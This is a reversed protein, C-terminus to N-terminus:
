FSVLASLLCSLVADASFTQFRLAPVVLLVLAVGVVVASVQVFITGVAILILAVDVFVLAVQVLIALVQVPVQMRFMALVTGVIQVSHRRSAEVRANLGLAGPM